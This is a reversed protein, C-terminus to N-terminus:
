YDTLLIENKYDGELEVAQRTSRLHRLSRFPLVKLQTLFVDQCFALEM